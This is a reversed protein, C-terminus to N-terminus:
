QLRLLRYIELFAGINDMTLALEGFADWMCIVLDLSEDPCPIGRMDRVKFEIYLNRKGAERQGCRHPIPKIDEGYLRVDVKLLHFTLGGM